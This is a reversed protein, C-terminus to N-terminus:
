APDAVSGNPEVRRFAGLFQAAQPGLQRAVLGVLALVREDAAGASAHFFELVAVVEGEGLVPVLVAINLGSDEAERKRLFRTDATVHRILVPAQTDQAIGPLGAGPALRFAQSAHRLDCFHDAGPVWRETVCLSGGERILWAQGYVWGTGACIAVVAVDLAAVFAARVSSGPDDVAASDFM